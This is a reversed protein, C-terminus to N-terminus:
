GVYRQILSLPTESAGVTGFGSSAEPCAGAPRPRPSRGDQGTGRRWTEPDVAEGWSPSSWGEARSGEQVARPVQGPGEQWPDGLELGGPM